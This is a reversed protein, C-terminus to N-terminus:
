LPLLCHHLSASPEGAALGELPAGDQVSPDGPRSSVSSFHRGGAARVTGSGVEGAGVICCFVKAAGGRGEGEGEREGASAPASLDVGHRAALTHRRLLGALSPLLEADSGSPFLALSAQAPPLALAALLRSRLRDNEALLAGGLCPQQQQQAGRPALVARLLRAHVDRAVELTQSCLFIIIIIILPSILDLLTGDCLV